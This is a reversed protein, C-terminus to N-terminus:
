AVYCTAVTAINYTGVDCQKCTLMFFFLCCVESILDFLIFVLAFIFTGVLLDRSYDLIAPKKDQADDEQM